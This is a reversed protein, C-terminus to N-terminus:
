EHGDIQLVWVFRVPVSLHYRATDSMGDLTLHLYDYLDSIQAIEAYTGTIDLSVYHKLSWKLLYGSVWRLRGLILDRERAGSWKLVHILRSHTLPALPERIVLSDLKASVKWHVSRMTDGLRFPRLDHDDSFGGGPKAHLIVDHPLDEINPSEIPPPLVLISVRRRFKAPVCFLGLLSVTWIRKIEYVFVGSHSTDVKVEYRNSMESSIMIRQKHTADECAGHMRFKVCKAPYKNESFVSFVLVADENKELIEPATLSIQKSLMGPLSIILDLLALLLLSVLLYSSFWLPYLIAFLVAWTLAVTYVARYKWM